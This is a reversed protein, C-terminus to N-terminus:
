VHARGIERVDPRDHKIIDLLGFGFRLEPILKFFPLYIDCGLGVEALVDFRNLVLPTDKRKSLDFSGTFGGTLYPRYNNVRWASYKISIPFNLYNSKIDQSVRERSEQERFFVNKNGFYMNPTFRLNLNETFALDAVLGVTFGPSFDPIEAFWAEGNEEVYGSHTFASRFLM